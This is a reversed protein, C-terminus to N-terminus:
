FAVYLDVVHVYTMILNLQQLNLVQHFSLLFATCDAYVYQSGLLLTIFVCLEHHSSLLFTFSSNSVPVLVWCLRTCGVPSRTVVYYSGLSFGTPFRCASLRCFPGFECGTRIFKLVCYSGSWLVHIHSGPMLLYLHIFKRNWGTNSSNYLWMLTILLSASPRLWISFHIRISARM